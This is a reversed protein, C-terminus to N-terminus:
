SRPPAEAMLLRGIAALRGGAIVDTEESHV